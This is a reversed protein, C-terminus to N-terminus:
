NSERSSAYLRRPWILVPATQKLASAEFGRATAAAITSGSGMFPDLVIGQGLALSARIFHRMLQQPKLSPHPAVQREIGRAPSSFVLDKFPEEESFGRCAEPRGSECTTRCAGKALNESSAGPNGVRNQCSPCAKSSEILMRPGIVVASHLAGGSQGGGRKEFGAAIFPEYVLHSVLPNTAIFVHAGPVLVVLNLSRQVVRSVSTIIGAIPLRVSM